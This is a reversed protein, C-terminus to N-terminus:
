STGVETPVDRIEDNLPTNKGTKRTEAMRERHCRRCSRKTRGKSDTWEYTNYRDMPHGCKPFAVRGIFRALQSKVRDLEAETVALQEALSRHDSGALRLEDEFAAVERQYFMCVQTLPESRITRVLRLSCGLRM